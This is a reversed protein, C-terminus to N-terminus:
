SLVPPLDAAAPLTAGPAVEHRVRMVRQPFPIEIGERALATELALLIDHTAEIRKNVDPVFARVEFELASDALRVLFVSPPPERLVLKLGRLADLMVQRARPIDTGFAVGVTILIRTVPSSLTWNVVRETIFTKNPVIVDKQDWDVLTTGRIQIRSVTGTIDGVTVTDGVRVPREFLIILGAVFNAVIEQLGFGLGVGLAAVLWQIDSWRGGLTAFVAVAGTIVIAYNTLTRWAYRSGADPALRQFLLLEIFGPLNGAAALTLLAILAALVVDHLTVALLAERGDVQGTHQWLRVEELFGLAPFVELWIIWGGALAALWVAIRLLKRTRTDLTQLEDAAANAAAERAVDEPTADGSAAAMREALLRWAARRRGVQLARALLGYLALAALALALTQLSLFSLRQASYVYGAAALAALLLLVGLLLWRLAPLLRQWMGGARPLLARLLPRQPALNRFLDVAAATWVLLLLLRTLVDFSDERAADLWLPILAAPLFLALLRACLRRLPQAADAPWHLHQVAVGQPALFLLLAAAFGTGPAYTQMAHGLGRTFEAAEIPALLLRGAIHMLLPAPLAGLLTWGLALLTLRFRDHDPHMLDRHQARWHQCARRLLLPWVALILPLALWWASATLASLAGQWHAPNGLWALAQGAGRLNDKGIPQTDPVWLLHRDLYQALAEAQATARRSAADWEALTRLLGTQAAALRQYTAAQSDILVSADALVQQRREGAIHKFEGADSAVKELRALDLQRREEETRIQELELAALQQERLRAARREALADPLAARQQRLLRGLAQSLGTAELRRRTDAADRELQRAQAEAADRQRATEELGATIQAARQNLAANQEALRQLLPHKGAAAQEQQEAQALARGAEERRRENLADEIQRGRSRLVDATRQAADRRAALVQLRLPGGPLAQEIRAIEAMLAERQARELVQRAARLPAPDGAPAPSKAAAEAESLQRRLTGLRSRELEPARQEEEWAQRAESLQSEAAAQEVQAKLLQAELETVGSAASLDPTGPTVAAQTQLRQLEQPLRARNQREADMQSRAGSARALADLAQQYLAQAQQRQEANLGPTAPLEALRAKIHAESPAAAAAMLSTSGLALSGCLFAGALRSMALLRLGSRTVKVAM